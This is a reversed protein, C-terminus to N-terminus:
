VPLPGNWAGAGDVWSVDTAGSTAVVSVDTQNPIGFQNSVALDEAAPALGGNTIRSPGHWAGAGDVWSVDTAGSTAVVFVDTQNPIGFQNSAALAAGGPATHAGTIPSPGNWAGAGAVWSVAAAGNYAVVYVDTQGGIGFQASAAVGGGPPSTNGATIGMPGNWTGADDVWSVDTAGSTAVVFVDTQNPIGFQNSVALAAGGPATGASTMPSPGNWAGAGDVWLVRIAGDSGVVFVDTQDPIGFQNSAALGSGSPAVGTPSLPMPGNWAGAGDVWLVRIAGDSGLVFVDTQNPIGFQSSVTLRAGPAALGPASISLPGNWAGASVVWRVDVAGNAGVSFVDTQNPVGFQPSAVVGSGGGFDLAGKPTGWGTPGDYGTRATCLYSPTCTGDGGSTVDNLASTQSYPYSPGVSAHGGSAYLSAIIPTGVSTGGLVIWGTGGTSTQSDYVAVGTNPDADASVDNVTRNSCGPDKQWFPKPEYASCGSDTQSWAAESWGRASSDQTLTTGGVATVFQSAAPYQVGGTYGFDGAAATIAIGPHDFHPDDFATEGPYEPISWSNSISNAGLAAAEDVGSELDTTLTSSAEVLLIHCNPCAASVMDLDLSEESEWGGTPDTPPYSSGGTQNVKRFCGNATTCAPLGYESRYVGLDAEASPDDFADVVAVTQGPVGNPLQYASRLDAPAYAAPDPSSTAQLAGRANIALLSACRAHGPPAPGCAEKTQRLVPARVKHIPPQAGAPQWYGQAIFAATAALLLGAFGNVWVRRPPTTPDGEDRRGSNVL